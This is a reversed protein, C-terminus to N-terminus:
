DVFVFENAMLLAQALSEWPKLPAPPPEPPGGFEKKADWEAKDYKASADVTWKIAPSWLFDDNNLGGRLDVIFDITDGKEVAVREFEAKAKTNHLTWQGLVGHRSSVLTARIGDGETRKHELTGAINIKGSVPATWRRIAAHQLDNGAHGGEATLQVWGLKADPYDASGQWAKDAFYPLPVFGQVLGQEIRGYGYSWASPQPPPPPEPAPLAEAQHVFAISAHVEDATPERQFATRYLFRAREETARSGSSEARAALNKARDVLFPNNMLYLAQQPVTTLSRQGSPLDPNPFDFVRYVGPLFQRDVFGYLARKPVFKGGFLPRPKGGAETTLEGSALLLSDRLEEFELRHPNMRWLLRNQPDQAAATANASVSRQQYTSSLMILRHLKKVSWGNDVFYNALWDLLEPHSPAESRTGFDNLTKVLGEGFHGAWVRNVFVRATLPNDKSAIAEALELRGSGKQFPKRDKGAILQLYQRPIEEGRSAPNGRRFVRPNKAGPKDELMVSYRPAGAAKIIWRDIESQLKGFEVRPGEHFFWEVDWVSGPPVNVPSEPGFLVQRLEKEAPSLGANELDKKNVAALMEGYRAAVEEMSNPSKEAFTKRVLENLDNADLLEKRAAEGRESFESRPLKAFAHWAAWVPHFSKGAQELYSQWKRVITPNLDDPGRIEYHEETPLKDADLVAALYEPTKARVKALLEAKRKEFIEQLKAVREDYGKKFELYEKTQPPNEELCVTREISASFVGYLSYYDQIPIPDFKHDHCRACSVTLAQTAKTLTDIRDDIIDHTVGLFRRGVTLFGTAALPSELGEANKLRAIQDGAIQQRLFEDYPLDINFARIVWDRYVHSHVFQGEERDSYVYGKTDAFRAVDLWHRGWKEGYRPSDLLRDVVRKFADPSPDNEFAQTEEFSPPLGTLDYSARRLLTRRDARASPSLNNAELKARIFFDLENQAWSQDNVAPLSPRKPRQFAWHNAAQALAPAASKTNTRPDPAGMKVWETLDAIQAESLKKKPPMQLKEDTWRVAKILASAEPDGPVIVPGSEGGKAVAERTDLRLGGKVKESEASHCKYCNEVLVPRIRKEFFDLESDAAGHSVSSLHACVAAAALSLAVRLLENRLFM